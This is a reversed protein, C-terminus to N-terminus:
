VLAAQDSLLNTGTERKYLEPLFNELTGTEEINHKAWAQGKGDPFLWPLLLWATPGLGPTGPVILCNEDRAGGATTTFVHEMRALVVGGKTVSHIFGTDDLKEITSVAEIKYNPNRGLYECLAIQAGPGISGDPSCRIYRAYVRDLPHWVRYRPFRRGEIEVDGEMHGFWWALMQPTVNRLVDHKIWYKKRGDNLTEVGARASSVAKFPWSLQLPEPLDTSMPIRTGKELDPMQLAHRTPTDRSAGLLAAVLSV